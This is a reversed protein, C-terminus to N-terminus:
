SAVYMIGTFMSHLLFSHRALPRSNLTRESLSCGVVSQMVDMMIDTLMHLHLAVPHPGSRGNTWSRQIRLPVLDPQIARDPSSSPRMM